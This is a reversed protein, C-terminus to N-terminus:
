LATTFSLMLARIYTVHPQPRPFRSQRMPTLHLTHCHYRHMLRHRGWGRSHRKPQFPGKHPAPVNPQQVMNPLITAIYRAQILVFNHFSLVETNLSGSTILLYILKRRAQTASWVITLLMARPVFCNYSISMYQAGEIRCRRWPGALLKIRKRMKKALTM